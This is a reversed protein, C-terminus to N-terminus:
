EKFIKKKKKQEPFQLVKKKMETGVRKLRNKVYCNKAKLHLHLAVRSSPVRAKGEVGQIFCLIRTGSEHSRAKGQGKIESVPSKENHEPGLSRLGNEGACQARWEWEM